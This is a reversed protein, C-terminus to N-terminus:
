ASELIYDVIDRTLEKVKLESSARFSEVQASSLSESRRSFDIAIFISTEPLGEEKRALEVFGREGEFHEQNFNILSSVQAKRAPGVTVQVEDEEDTVNVRYMVDAVHPLLRKLTPDQSLFKTDMIKVLQEFSIELDDVSCTARKLYGFRLFTQADLLPVARECMQTISQSACNFDPTDQMYTLSTIEATYSRHQNWDTIVLQGTGAKINEFDASMLPTLVDPLTNLLRMDAKFRLQFVTKQDVVKWKKAM